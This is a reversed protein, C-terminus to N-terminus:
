LIRAFSFWDDGRDPTGLHHRLLIRAALHTLAAGHRGHGFAFLHRPYNRHPGFLPLGDRTRSFEADWGSVPPIGSIAPYLVSLEYMLQGTRQVLGRTRARDPLAPQDGGAFLVRTEPAWRLFHPPEGADRLVVARRGVERRVSAPLTDTQVIYTHSRSLHRRLARFDPPPYGTAIVVQDTTVTGGGATIEVKRRGARVRDVASREFISAGREGAARALGMLARYPDVQSVDRTKIGGLGAIATERRFAAGSMWSAGDQIVGAERRVKLNKRLRKEGDRDQAFWVVDQSELDCRVGLRRLTAAFDLSARRTEQWIRRAARVGHIDAVNQFDADPEQRLLGLGRVTGMGHGIRDREFLAVKVGAAAFVYAITCGTLGGGIIAVDTDLHGRHRPYAPVRSKPFRERWFPLGYSLSSM